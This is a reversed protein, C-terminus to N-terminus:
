NRKNAPPYRAFSRCYFGDQGDKILLRKRKTGVNFEWLNAHHGQSWNTFLLTDGTLNWHLKYPQGLHVVRKTGSNADLLALENQFEDSRPGTDRLFRSLAITNGHPAWRVEEAGHTGRLRTVRHGRITAIAVVENGAKAARYIGVLRDGGPSWSLGQWRGRPWVDRRLKGDLLLLRLTGFEENERTRQVVAITNNRPSWRAESYRVKADRTLQRCQGTKANWVCVQGDNNTSTFANGDPSWSIEGEIADAPFQRRRQTQLDLLVINARSGDFVAYRGNPSVSVDEVAYPVGGIEREQASRLDRVKLVGCKLFVIARPALDPRSTVRERGKAHCAGTSAVLALLAIRAGPLAISPCAASKSQMFTVSGTERTAAMPFFMFRRVTVFFAFIQREFKWTKEMKAVATLLCIAQLRM